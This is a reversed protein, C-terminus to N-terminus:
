VCQNMDVNLGTNGDHAHYCKNNVVVHLSSLSIPLDYLIHRITSTLSDGVVIMKNGYQLFDMWHINCESLYHKNEVM